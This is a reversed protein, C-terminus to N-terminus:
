LDAISRNDDTKIYTTMKEMSDAVYIQQEIVTGLKLGQISQTELRHILELVNTSDFYFREVSFYLNEKFNKLRIGIKNNTGVKLQEVFYTKGVKIWDENDLHSPKVSDDFCVCKLEM